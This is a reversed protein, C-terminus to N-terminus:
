ELGVNPCSFKAVSVGGPCRFQSTKNMEPGTRADSAKDPSFTFNRGSRDHACLESGRTAM